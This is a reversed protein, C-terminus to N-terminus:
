ETAFGGPLLVRFPDDFSGDGSEMALLGADLRIAPRLGENQVVVRIYGLNGNEKTCVAGYAETASQTRTWYPSSGNSYQFLGNQLAYPTPLGRRAANGTFGYAKSSLEEKTLLTVLAGDEGALLLAQEGATFSELFDGSLYSYLETMTFDGGGREYAVDDYHIRHHALVYESLLLVTESDASLVRWLIPELGGELTQPFTGLEMYQYGADPDYGRPAACAPYPSAWLFACLLIAAATCSRRLDPKRVWDSGM